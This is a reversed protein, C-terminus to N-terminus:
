FSEEGKNGTRFDAKRPIMQKKRNGQSPSM